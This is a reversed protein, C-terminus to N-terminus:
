EVQDTLMRRARGTATEWDGSRAQAIIERLWKAERESIDGASQSDAIMREIKELRPEDQRNCISYLAKAYEYTKPSVEGYGRTSWFVVLLVAAVVSGAAIYHSRQLKM